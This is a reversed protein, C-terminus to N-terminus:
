SCLRQGELWSRILRIYRGAICRDTGLM